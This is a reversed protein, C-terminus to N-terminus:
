GLAQTMMRLYQRLFDDVAKQNCKTLRRLTRRRAKVGDVQWAIDLAMVRRHRATFMETDMGAEAM